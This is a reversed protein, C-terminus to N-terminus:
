ACGVITLAMPLFALGAGIPPSQLVRQLYLSFFSWLPFLAATSVLVVLTASRLPRDPFFRPPVLPTAAARPAVVWGGGPVAGGAGYMAGWLGVARMREAGAAFSATITALSAAAMIAGGLGQLARAVILTAASPALGGALSALAFLLLGALFTRRQGWLDAARGALLLFGAFAITYASVVWQLDNASFGLSTRITPLAVNVIAVDLIVM